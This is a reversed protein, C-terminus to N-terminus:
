GYGHGTFAEVERDCEEIHPLFLAFAARAQAATVHGAEVAALLELVAPLEVAAGYGPSETRHKSRVAGLSGRVGRPHPPRRLPRPHRRVAYFDELGPRLRTTAAHEPPTRAPAGGRPIHPPSTSSPRTPARNPSNSSPQRNPRTRASTWRLRTATWAVLYTCTASRAPPMWAAPDRDAKSRNTRATVAVLSSRADVENAYADRREPTRDHAGSDWAEALPVM